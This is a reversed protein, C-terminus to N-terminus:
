VAAVHASPKPICRHRATNGIAEIPSALAPRHFASAGAGARVSAVDDAPPWAPGDAVIAVAAVVMVVVVLLVTAVVVTGAVVDVVTGCSGIGAATGASARDSTATNGIPRM